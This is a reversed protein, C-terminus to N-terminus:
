SHWYHVTVVMTDTHPFSTLNIDQSSFTIPMHSWKTQIIPGEVAIHNVQRYYDRCQRKTEIDTNSGGTITLITGHTPFNVPQQPPPNPETKAQNANINNPAPYTIQPVPPSLNNAPSAFISSLQNHCLPLIPLLNSNYTTTKTYTHHFFRLIPHPTNSTTLVGSCLTTSRGLHHNHRLNLLNKAIKSAITPKMATICTTYIDRHTHAEAEAEGQGRNSAGGRHNYQPPRQDFARSNREQLPRSSSGM